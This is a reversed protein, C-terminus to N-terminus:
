WCPGPVLRRKVLLLAAACHNCLDPLKLKILLVIPPRYWLRPNLTLSYRLLRFGRRVNGQFLQAIGSIYVKGSLVSDVQSKLISPAVIREWNNEFFSDFVKKREQFDPLKEVFYRTSMNSHHRRYIAQVMDIRAIRGHAAFRLWMEMDGAHPLSPRYGGMAKQVSTRVMATPTHVLNSGLACTEEILDQRTWLFSQEQHIEPLPLHDYWEIVAGHALVIDPNEDMVKTARELAGPALFDDASLLQFYDASALAIGQNYTLIHGWNQSHSIVTVRADTKALEKAVRLSDDSSADDIILVRLDTISQTLVSRVCAKLFHAYNYCPVVIDIKAM